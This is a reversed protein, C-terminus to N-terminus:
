GQLQMYVAVTKQREIDLSQLLAPRTRAQILSAVGKPSHM